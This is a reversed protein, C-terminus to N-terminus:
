NFYLVIARRVFNSMFTYINYNLTRRVEESFSRPLNSIYLNTVDLNDSHQKIKTPDHQQKRIQDNISM